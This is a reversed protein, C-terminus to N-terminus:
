QLQGSPPPDLLGMRAPKIRSLAVRVIAAQQGDGGGAGPAGASFCEKLHTLLDRTLSVEMMLDRGKEVLDVIKTVGATKRRWTAAPLGGAGAVSRGAGEGGPAAHAAWAAQRFYIGLQAAM